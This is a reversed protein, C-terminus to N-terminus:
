WTVSASPLTATPGTVTSIEGALGVNDKLSVIANLKPNIKKIKNIYSELIKESTIELKQMKESLQFGYFETLDM